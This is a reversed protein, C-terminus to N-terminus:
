GPDSQALDDRLGEVMDARPDDPALELFRDFQRVAEADDGNGRAILGRFFPIDPDDEGVVDAYRDTAADADDWLGTRVLLTVLRQNADRSQPAADRLLVLTVLAAGVDNPSGNALYLDALEGLADVDRPNAKVEDTLQRIRELRADKEAVGYPSPAAFAALLLLALAGGVIAPLQWGRGRPATPESESEAPPPVAELARLTRAAHAEAEDRQVRYSEEDLSGARHDAEIDRLAELALSHRVLTAEREPDPEAEPVPPTTDLLPWAVALVVTGAVLILLLWEGM